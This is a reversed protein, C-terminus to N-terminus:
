PDEHERRASLPGYKISSGSNMFANGSVGMELCCCQKQSSAQVWIQVMLLESLLQPDLQCRAATMLPSM